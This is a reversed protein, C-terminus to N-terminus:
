LGERDGGVLDEELEWRWGVVVFEEKERWGRVGFGEFLEAEVLGVVDGVGADEGVLLGEVEGEVWWWGGFLECRDVSCGADDGHFEFHFRM